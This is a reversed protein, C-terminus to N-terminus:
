SALVSLTQVVGNLQDTAKIRVALKLTGTTSPLQPNVSRLVTWTADSIKAGAADPFTASGRTVIVDYQGTPVTWRIGCRLTKKKASTVSVTAGGSSVMGGTLTLGTASGIASWTSGGVPRYQVSFQVTGATTASKANIGFLGQSFVIDLSIEQSAAQTTRTANDNTNTLSIGVGLEYIDQTFLTPATSIEWEVDQFSAIDTEGIRIDSIDLDGYGLDLLMRLYQDDGSIETFPLAAHPPFFRFTGVVCPIVGYPNTQNSTGTLSNLQQFPDSGGAGLGKPTPPPILANVAMIAVVGILGLTTTGVGLWAAAAASGAGMTFYSIVLVIIIKIWKGANGGQPYSVVHLTVGEKPRVCAWAERPVLYGGCYVSATNSVDDGLMEAITMGARFECYVTDSDFPHPKAVVTCLQNGDAMFTAWLFARM